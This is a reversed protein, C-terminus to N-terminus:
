RPETIGEVIGSPYTCENTKPDFKGGAHKCDRKLQAIQVRRDVRSSWYESDKLGRFVTVNGIGSHIELGNWLFWAAGAAVAIAAAGIGIAMPNVHVDYEIPVLQVIEKQGQPWKKSRRHGEQIMVQKFWQGKIEILDNKLATAAKEAIQSGAKAAILPGAM